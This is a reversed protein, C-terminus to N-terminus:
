QAATWWAAIIVDHGIAASVDHHLGLSTIRDDNPHFPRRPDEGLVPVFADVLSKWINVWNRDPGTTIAVDLSVPGAEVPTPQTQLLRDHLTAKWEKREYSGSIRTSFQAPVVAESLQAPGIALSSPGRIKRGFMAAIRAPGLRQALPFLYNDLDRGGGALPLHAPLGILLEVSLHGRDATLM